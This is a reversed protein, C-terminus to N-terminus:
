GQEGPWSAVIVALSDGSKADTFLNTYFIGDNVKLFKFFSSSSFDGSDWFVGNM